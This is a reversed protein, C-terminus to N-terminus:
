PVHPGLGLGCPSLDCSPKAAGALPDPRDAGALGLGWGATGLVWRLAWQQSLHLPFCGKAQSWLHIPSTNGLGSAWSAQGGAQRARGSFLLVLPM